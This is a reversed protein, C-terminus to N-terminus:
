LFVGHGLYALVFMCLMFIDDDEEHLPVQVEVAAPEIRSIRPNLNDEPRHWQSRLQEEARESSSLYVAKVIGKSTSDYSLVFGIGGPDRICHTGQPHLPSGPDTRATAAQFHRIGWVDANWDVHQWERLTAPLARDKALNNRRGLVEMVFTRDVGCIAVGPEPSCVYFVWDRSEINETFVAVHVDNWRVVRECRGFVSRMARQLASESNKGFRVIQCGEFRMPGLGYPTPAKFQRSGFIGLEVAHGQMEKSIYGEEPSMLFGCAMSRMSNRFRSPGDHIDGLEFPGKAVIVSETDTPLWHVFDDTRKPLGVLRDAASVHASQMGAFLFLAQCSLLFRITLQNVKRM